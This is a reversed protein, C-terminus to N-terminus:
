SCFSVEGLFAALCASFSAALRLAASSFAAVGLGVSASSRLRRVRRRSCRAVRRSSNPRWVSTLARRPLSVPAFPESWDWARAAASFNPGHITVAPAAPAMTSKRTLSKPLPSFFAALCASFFDALAAFDL